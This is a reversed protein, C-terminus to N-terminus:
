PQRDLEDVALILRSAASLMALRFLADGRKIRGLDAEVAVIEGLIDIREGRREDVMDLVEHGAITVGQRMDNDM